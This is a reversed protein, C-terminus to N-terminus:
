KGKIIFQRISILRDKVQNPNFSVPKQESYGLALTYYQDALKYKGLRDYSVALNVMYDPNSSDLAYANFYSKQAELWDAKKAFLNGKTYQLVASKPYEEAMAFLEQEWQRNLAVKGSLNAIGEYAYINNPENDLVKQYLNIASYFKEETIAIGALGLLANVNNPEKAQVQNFLTKAQVYDRNDYAQYAKSITSRKSLIIVEVNDNLSKVPKSAKSQSSLSTNKASVGKVNTSTKSPSSSRKLNSVDLNKQSQSTVSSVSQTTSNETQPSKETDSMEVIQDSTADTSLNNALLETDTTNKVLDEKVPTTINNNELVGSSESSELNKSETFQMKTLNYKNMSLDLAKNQQQYYLMGYVGIGIFLFVVSLSVITRTSAKSSKVVKPKTEQKNMLVPNTSLASNDSSDVSNSDDLPMYGPLDDMSWVFDQKPNSMPPLAQTSDLILPSSDSNLESEPLNTDVINLGSHTGGDLQVDAVPTSEDIDLSNILSELDNDRESSPENKLESVNSLKLQFSDEQEMLDEESKDETSNQLSFNSHEVNVKSTLDNESSVGETLDEVLPHKNEDLEIPKLNFLANNENLTSEIAKSEFDGNNLDSSVVDDAQSALETELKNSDVDQLADNDDALKQSNRKEDAAKKLADLLVSM